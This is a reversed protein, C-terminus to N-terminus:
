GRHDHALREILPRAQAMLSETDAAGNGDLWHTLVTENAASLMNALLRPRLDTAPDAGLRRSFFDVLAQSVSRRLEGEAQAHVTPATRAARDWLKFEPLRDRAGHALEALADWVALVPDATDEIDRLRALTAKASRRPFALLFDEKLAFYRAATRASMGAERAIDPVTVAPYGSDAFMELATTELRAAVHRRRLEWGDPEAIPSPDAPASSM